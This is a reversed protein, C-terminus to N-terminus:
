FLEIYVLSTMQKLVPLAYFYYDNIYSKILSRHVYARMFIEMELSFVLVIEFVKEKKYFCNLNFQYCQKFFFNM